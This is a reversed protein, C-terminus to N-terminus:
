CCLTYGTTQIPVNDLSLQPLTERRKKKISVSFLLKYIVWSVKWLSQLSPSSSVAACWQQHFSARGFRYKSSRSHAWIIRPASHSQTTSLVFILSVENNDNNCMPTRLQFAGLLQRCWAVCAILCPVAMMSLSRGLIIFSSDRTLLTILLCKFDELVRRKYTSLASTSHLAWVVCIRQIM